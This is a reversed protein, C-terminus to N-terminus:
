PAVCDGLTSRVGNKCNRRAELMPTPRSPEPPGCSIALPSPFCRRGFADFLASADGCCVDSDVDCGPRTVESLKSEARLCIASTRAYRARWFLPAGLGFCRVDNRLFVPASEATASAAASKPSNGSPLYLTLATGRSSTSPYLTIPCQGRRLFRRSLSSMFPARCISSSSRTEYLEGFRYSM